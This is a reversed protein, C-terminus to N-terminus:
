TWAAAPIAAGEEAAIRSSGRFAAFAMALPVLMGVLLSRLPWLQDQYTVAFEWILLVLLLIQAVRPIYFM